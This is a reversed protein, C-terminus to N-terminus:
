TRPAIPAVVVPPKPRQRRKETKRELRGEVRKETARAHQLKVNKQIKTVLAVKKEPSLRNFLNFKRELSLKSEPSLLQFEKWNEKVQEKNENTMASFRAYSDVAVKKDAESLSSYDARTVSVISFATLIFIVINKKM